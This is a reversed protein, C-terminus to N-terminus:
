LGLKVMCGALAGGPEVTATSPAPNSGFLVTSNVHGVTLEMLLV